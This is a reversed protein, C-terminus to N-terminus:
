RGTAQYEVINAFRVAWPDNIRERAAEIGFFQQAAMASRFDSATKEAADTLGRHLECVGLLWFLRADDCMQLGRTAFVMADADRGDAYCLYAIDFCTQPTLPMTKGDQFGLDELLYEIPESLGTLPAFASLAPQRPGAPAPAVVAPGRPGPTAPAQGVAAPVRTRPAPATTAPPVSPRTRPFRRPATFDPNPTGPLPQPELGQPILQAEAAASWTLSLCVLSIALKSIM